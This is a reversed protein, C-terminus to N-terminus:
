NNLVPAYSQPIPIRVKNYIAWALVTPIFMDCGEAVTIHFKPERIGLIQKGLIAVVKDGLTVNGYTMTGQDEVFPDHTYNLEVQKGGDVSNPFVIKIESTQGCNMWDKNNSIVELIRPGRKKETVLYSRLQRSCKSKNLPACLSQSGDPSEAAYFEYSFSYKRLEFLHRSGPAHDVVLNRFQTFIFAVGQKIRLTTLQLKPISIM